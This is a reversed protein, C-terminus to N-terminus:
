SLTAILPDSTILMIFSTFVPAIIMFYLTNEAASLM